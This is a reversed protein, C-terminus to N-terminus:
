LLNVLACRCTQKAQLAAWDQKGRAWCLLQIVSYASLKEDGDIHRLEASAMKKGELATYNYCCGIQPHQACILWSVALKRILVADRTGGEKKENHASADCLDFPSSRCSSKHFYFNFYSIVLLFFAIIKLHCNCQWCTHSHTNHNAPAPSVMRNTFAPEANARPKLWSWDATKVTGQPTPWHLHIGRSAGCGWARRKLM